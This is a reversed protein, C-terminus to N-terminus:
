GVHQQARSFQWAVYPIVAAALGSAFGTRDVSASSVSMALVLFFLITLVYNMVAMLLGMGPAIRSAIEVLVAAISAAGLAALFGLAFSVAAKHGSGIAFATVGVVLIPIGLVLLWRSPWRSPSTRM